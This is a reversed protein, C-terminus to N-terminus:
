DSFYDSPALVSYYLPSVHGNSLFFLDEGKADMDFAPSHKMEKFFLATRFDAYGLSEGLHGSQVCIGYPCYRKKDTNRNGKIRGYDKFQNLAFQFINKVVLFKKSKL